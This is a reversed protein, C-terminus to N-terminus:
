LPPQRQQVDQDIGLHQDGLSWSRSSSLRESTFARLREALGRITEAAHHEPMWAAHLRVGIPMDHEDTVDVAVLRQWGPVGADPPETTVAAVRGAGALAQVTPGDECELLERYSVGARSLADDVATRSVAARSAMALPYGALVSARVRGPGAALPHEPLVYARVPALALDFRVLDPHPVTPSIVLDADQRLRDYITFHSGAVTLLVPDDSLLTAVFPAVVTRITVPTAAVLLREVRGVALDRVAQETDRALALLRRALPVVARGAPTLTLRIGQKDLLRVGLEAELARLQRSLAPQAIHLAAAAATVTGHEVVAVFSELRGLHLRGV